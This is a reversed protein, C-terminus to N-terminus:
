LAGLGLISSVRLFDKDDKRCSGDQPARSRANTIRYRAEVELIKGVFVSDWHLDDGAITDGLVRACAETYPCPMVVLEPEHGSIDIALWGALATGFYEGVVVRFSFEICARGWKSTKHASECAAIYRGAPMTPSPPTGAQRVAARSIVGGQLIRFSTRKSKSNENHSSEM